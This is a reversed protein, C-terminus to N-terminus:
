VFFKFDIVKFYGKSKPKFITKEKEIEKSSSNALYDGVDPFIDDESESDEIQELIKQNNVFTPKQSREKADQISKM